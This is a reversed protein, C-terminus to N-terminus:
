MFKCMNLHTEHGVGDRLVLWGRTEPAQLPMSVWSPHLYTYLMVWCGPMAASSLAPHMRWQDANRHLVPQCCAQTM